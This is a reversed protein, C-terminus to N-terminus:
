GIQSIAQAVESANPRKNFDTQLMDKILHTDGHFEKMTKQLNSSIKDRLKKVDRPSLPKSYNIKKEELADFVAGRITAILSGLPVKEQGKKRPPPNLESFVIGLAWVDSAFVSKKLEKQLPAFFREVDIALIIDIKKQRSLKSFDKLNLLNKIYQKEQENMKDLMKNFLKNIKEDDLKNLQSTRARKYDTYLQGYLEKEPSNFLDNGHTVFEIVSMPRDTRIEKATALDSLRASVQNEKSSQVLVNGFNIDGHSMHINHLDCVGDSLQRMISRYMRGKTFFDKISATKKLFEDLNGQNAFRQYTIMRTKTITQDGRDIKTTEYTHLGVFPSYIGPKPGVKKFAADEQTFEKRLEKFNLHRRSVLKAYSEGSNWDISPIVIKSGAKMKKVVPLQVMIHLQGLEGKFVEITLPPSSNSPNKKFTLVEGSTALREWESYHSSIFRNLAELQNDEIKEVKPLESLKQKFREKEYQNSRVYQDGIRISLSSLDDRIGVTARHFRPPQSEEESLHQLNGTAISEIPDIKRAKLPSLLSNSPSDIESPVEM